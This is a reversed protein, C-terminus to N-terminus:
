LITEYINRKSCYEVSHRFYDSIKNAKIQKARQNTWFLPVGREFLWICFLETVWTEGRKLNNLQTNSQSRIPEWLHKGKKRIGTTM